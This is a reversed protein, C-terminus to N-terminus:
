IGHIIHLIIVLYFTIALAPHLFRIQRFYGRGMGSTLMVGTAVLLIMTAYLVIGTGLDPYNSAPRTVQHAFHISVLLVATLNGLIHIYLMKGLQKPFKRKVLPYIPTVIAIYLTGIWGIWHVASTSIGLLEVQFFPIRFVHLFILTVVIIIVAILMAASLVLAKKV